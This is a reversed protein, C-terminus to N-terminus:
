KGKARKSGTGPRHSSVDLREYRVGTFLLIKAEVPEKQPRLPLRSRRDLLSIIEAM